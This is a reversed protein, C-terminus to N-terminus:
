GTGCVAGSIILLVNTGFSLKSSNYGSVTAIIIVPKLTSVVDLKV